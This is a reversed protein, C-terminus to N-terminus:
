GGCLGQNFAETCATVSAYPFFMNDGCQEVHVDNSCGKQPRCCEGLVKIRDCTEVCDLPNQIGYPNVGPAPIYPPQRM